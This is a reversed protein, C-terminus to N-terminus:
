YRLRRSPCVSEKFQVQGRSIQVVVACKDPDGTGHFKMTGTIGAFEKINALLADRVIKREAKIDKRSRAPKRCPRSCLRHRGLDPAAVDDARIQVQHHLPRHLEKTAGQAGAPM